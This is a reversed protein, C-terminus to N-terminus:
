DNPLEYVADSQEAHAGVAAYFGATIPSVPSVLWLKSVRGVEKKFAKILQSGLGRRQYDPWVELVYLNAMPADDPRSLVYGYAFGVLSEGAFAGVAVVAPDRLFVEAANTVASRGLHTVAQEVWSEDGPTLVRVVPDDGTPIDSM